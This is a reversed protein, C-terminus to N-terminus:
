EGSLMQLYNFEAMEAAAEAAAREAAFREKAVSSARIEKEM